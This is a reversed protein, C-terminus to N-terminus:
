AEEAGGTAAETDPVAETAVPAIAETNPVAEPVVPVAETVVSAPAESGGAAAAAAAAAVAPDVDYYGGTRPPAEGPKARGAARKLDEDTRI